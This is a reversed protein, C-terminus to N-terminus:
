QGEARLKAIAGRLEASRPSDPHERLFDELEDAAQATQQRRVYIAALTLQPHSFHAPDIGTAIRLYKEALALNDVAFYTMGLQSNALADNPRSLVAALNYQLAEDLKNLTLLVGGLNVLPEFANADQALSRRFYGEADAFRRSQYAITGLNNWAIAFQPAMEVARQLHTVAADVDRRALCKQAEQYEKRARDSISLERTSVLARRKPADDTELRRESVEIQIEVRGRASAVGPGVEITRRTEGRAPVFVAVTYTGALLGRFRFRGKDDSQTAASFPSTAGYLSVSAECEPVIRGSLEYRADGAALGVSALLLAIVPRM